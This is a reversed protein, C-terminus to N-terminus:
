SPKGGFDGSAYRRLDDDSMGRVSSPNIRDVMSHEHREPAFLGLLKSRLETTRTLALMYRARDAHKLDKDQLAIAIQTDRTDLKELELKLAEQANARPIQKLAEDIYRYVTPQSVGIKDAIQAVPMGRIRLALAESRKKQIEAHVADNHAAALDPKKKGRQARLVAREAASKPPAPKAAKAPHKQKAKASRRSPLDSM